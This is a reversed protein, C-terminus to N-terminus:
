SERSIEQIFDGAFLVLRKLDSVSPEERMEDVYLTYDRTYVRRRQGRSWASLTMSGHVYRTTSGAEFSSIELQTMDYDAATSICSRKSREPSTWLFHKLVTSESSAPKKIFTKHMKISTLIIVSGRPSSLTQWYVLSLLWQYWSSWCTSGTHRWWYFHLIDNRQITIDLSLRSCCLKWHFLGEFWVAHQM